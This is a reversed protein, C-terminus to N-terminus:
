EHFIQAGRPRGLGRAIEPFNGVRNPRVRMLRASACLRLLEKARLARTCDKWLLRWAGMGGHHDAGRTEADGRSSALRCRASDCLNKARLAHTCDKWLGGHGWTEM